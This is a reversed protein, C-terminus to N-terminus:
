KVELTQMSRRLRRRKRMFRLIIIILLIAIVIMIYLAIKSQNTIGLEQAKEKTYVRVSNEFTEFRQNNEFDLYDVQVSLSPNNKNFVVDLTITEFDDSEITGIYTEDESFITLGTGIVRVTVFRADAFGKNVIRIDINGKQGIIPNQTSISVSLSPNGSVTVGFTGKQEITKNDDKYTILYPIKYDGPSIDNSSKIRFTFTGEEGEEIEELTDDASGVSTFPLNTLDLHLTVEEIDEDLNNEVELSIRGESGPTLSDVDVSNILLASSLSFMLVFILPMALIKKM